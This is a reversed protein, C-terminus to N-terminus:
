TIDGVKKPGLLKNAGHTWMIDNKGRYLLEKLRLHVSIQIHRSTKTTTEVKEM